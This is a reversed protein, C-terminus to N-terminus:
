HAKWPLPCLALVVSSTPKFHNINIHIPQPRFGDNLGHVAAWISGDEVGSIGYMFRRTHFLRSFSVIHRPHLPIYLLWVGGRGRGGGKGRKGGEFTRDRVLSLRRGIDGRNAELRWEWGREGKGM